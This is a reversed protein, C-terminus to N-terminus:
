AHGSDKQKLGSSATQAVWQAAATAFSPPPPPEDYRIFQDYGGRDFAVRFPEALDIWVDPDPKRLPIPIPPFPQRVTWHYVDCDPRRDGRSVFAYYDAEPLPGDLQLRKGARILDLEVLHVPQELLMERKAIYQGRGSGTKNAPSLLEIVAILDHEPLHFIEIYGEADPELRLVFEEIKAHYGPPLRDRISGRLASIFEHHFDSWHAPSEVYPDMGPFPSPM